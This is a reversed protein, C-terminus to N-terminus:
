SDAERTVAEPQSGAEKVTSLKFNDEPLYGCVLQELEHLSKAHEPYSVAYIEFDFRESTGAANTLGVAFRSSIRLATSTDVGPLIAGLFGFSLVYISDGDRLKGSIAKAADGLACVALKSQSFAPRLKIMVVFVSLARQTAVARRFEMALRDEFTNFNPVAGLLDASAQSLEEAAQKRNRGIQRRLHQITLQRDVIYAVLLCALGCFGMFAVQPTKNSATARLAFVAPYMLVALGTALIFIAICAFLTLQFERRDVDQEPAQPRQSM